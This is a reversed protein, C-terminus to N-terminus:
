SGEEVYLTVTNEAVDDIEGVLSSGDKLLVRRVQSLVDTDPVSSCNFIARNGNIAFGDYFIEIERTQEIDLRARLFNNWVSFLHMERDSIQTRELEAEHEDVGFELSLIAERAQDSNRPVDFSFDLPASWGKDRERELLAPEMRWANVLTLRDNNTKDILAHYANVAGHVSFNGPIRNGGGRFQRIGYEGSLDEIIISKAEDHSECKYTAYIRHYAKNTLALFCKSRRQWGKRRQSQIHEIESLLIGANQQRCLPDFSVSKELVGDIADPVDLDGIAKEIDQYTSIDSDSFAWLVLVGFGFVDITFSYRGLDREPPSFPITCHDALTLGSLLYKRLKSIGFDALKPTNDKHLLINHPKVDRHIYNRSHAYSLAELVPKGIDEYFSDWGLSTINERCEFLNKDVWELVIYPHGTEDDMGFGYIDVINPHKLEQLASTERRFAEQLIPLEVIEKDFLKVAVQTSNEQLDVARYVRSMGGRKYYSPLAYRGALIRPCDTM